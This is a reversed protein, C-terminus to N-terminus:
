WWPPRRPATGGNIWHGVSLGGGGRGGAASRRLQDLMEEPVLGAAQVAREDAEESHLVEREGLIHCLFCQQPRQVCPRHAADGGIGRGPDRAHRDVEGAVGHPMAPHGAALLRVDDRVKLLQARLRPVVLDVIVCQAQHEAAAMGADRRVGLYHERQLDEAAEACRVLCRMRSAPMANAM